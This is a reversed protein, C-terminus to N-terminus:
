GRRRIWLLPAIVTMVVARVACPARVALVSALRSHTDVGYRRGSEAWACEVRREPLGRGVHGALLRHRCTADAVACGHASADVMPRLDRIPGAVPRGGVVRPSLGHGPRDRIRDAGLKRRLYRIYVDVINSGPDFDFGWVHSLLQERSLVQNPNRLFMETLM